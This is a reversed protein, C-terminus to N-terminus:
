ALSLPTLSVRKNDGNVHTLLGPMAEMPRQLARVLQLGPKLPATTEDAKTFGFM